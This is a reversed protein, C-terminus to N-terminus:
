SRVELAAGPLPALREPIYWDACTACVLMTRGRWRGRADLHRWFLVLAAPRECKTRSESLACPKAIV